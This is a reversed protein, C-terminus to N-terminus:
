NKKNQEALIATAKPRILTEENADWLVNNLFEVGNATVNGREDKLGLARYTKEPESLFFDKVSKLFSVNNKVNSCTKEPSSVNQYSSYKGGGIYGDSYEVEVTESEDDVSVVEGTQGYRKSNTYVNKVKDGETFM